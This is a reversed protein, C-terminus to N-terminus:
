RVNKRGNGQVPRKKKPGKGPNQLRAIVRRIKKQVTVFIQKGRQFSEVPRNLPLHVM